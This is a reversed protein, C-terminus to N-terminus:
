VKEFTQPKKLCLRLDREASRSVGQSESHRRGASMGSPTLGEVEPSPNVGEGWKQIYFL